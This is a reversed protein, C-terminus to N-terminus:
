RRGFGLERVYSELKRWTAKYSTLATKADTVKRQFEALYAPGGLFVTPSFVTSYNYDCIFKGILRCNSDHKRLSQESLGSLALDDLFYILFTGMERAFQPAARDYNWDGIFAQLDDEDIALSEMKGQYAALEPVDVPFRLTIQEGAHVNSLPYSAQSPRAMGLNAQLRETVFAPITRLAAALLAIEAAAPVGVKQPPTVKMLLPYARANAVPWGYQEIADLDDFGMVMPEDFTLSVTSMKKFVQEPELGTYQIRLDELTPYLALGFEQGGFGMIVIYRPPGDAGYHVELPQVNDLWRWPALHYFEVAASFLEELLPVTVGPVSLLGPLPERRNMHADMERLAADTAPLKAQYDCRVGIAALSETIAQALGANDLIIRAPRCRKGSGFTPKLMADALIALTREATLRDDEMQACRILNTSTDVALVIYPRYAPKNKPTIWVRARRATVHWTTHIQSLGAAKDLSNPAM